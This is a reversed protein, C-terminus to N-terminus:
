DREYGKYEFEDCKEIDSILVKVRDEIDQDYFDGTDLLYNLKDILRDKFEERYVSDNDLKIIDMMELIEEEFAELRIFEITDEYDALVDDVDKMSGANELMGIYLKVGGNAFEEVSMNNDNLFKQVDEDRISFEPSYTDEAIQSIYDRAKGLLFVASDREFIYDESELQLWEAITDGDYAFLDNLSTADIGEPYMDELCSEITALEDTSLRKVMDTAPGWFEFNNLSTEKTIKM